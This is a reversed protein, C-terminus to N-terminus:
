EAPKADPQKEAKESAAEKPKEEKKASVTVNGGAAKIKEIANPTALVTTIMYKKTVKGTALLKNYGLDALNVYYSGNQIKMLGKEVLKETQDELTKINIIKQVIERSKSTFGYKGFYKPNQWNRPKNADGRKGTGAKGRGGRNGAGRRKKM